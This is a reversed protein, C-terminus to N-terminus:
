LMMLALKTVLSLKYKGNVMKTSTLLDGGIFNSNQNIVIPLSGNNNEVILGLNTDTTPPLTQLAPTDINDMENFLDLLDVKNSTTTTTTVPQPPTPATGGFDVLLDLLANQFFIIM